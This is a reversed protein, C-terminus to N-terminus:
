AVGPGRRLLLWAAWASLAAAALTIVIFDPETALRASEAVVRWLHAAVLLAFVIGTTLVYARM